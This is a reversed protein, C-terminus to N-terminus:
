LGMKELMINCIQSNKDGNKLGFTVNLPNRNRTTKYNILTDYVIWICVNFILLYNKFVKYKFYLYLHNKYKGHIRKLPDM